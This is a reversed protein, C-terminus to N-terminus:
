KLLGKRLKVDESHEVEQQDLSIAALLFIPEWLLCRPSLIHGLTPQVIRSAEKIEQLVLLPPPSFKM